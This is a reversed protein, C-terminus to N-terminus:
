LINTIYNRMNNDGNFINVQLGEIENYVNNDINDDWLPLHTDGQDICINHLIFCDTICYHWNYFETDQRKLLIRWISKIM